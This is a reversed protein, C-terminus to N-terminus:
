SVLMFDVTRNVLDAKIVKIKVVDGLKYKKKTNEGIIYYNEDDFYYYDDLMNSFHVLGEVTNELQVYMGFHTLSSVIGEYVNGIRKSMYEAVKLDMVAREAEEATRETISTHDAVKPLVAELREQEKSTLKGKYFAKIIRHIQLDPYRRIPATYHTYYKAALGFHIDPESSYRAKKLSRLLLTNILTEEKKGKVEKTIRQLEKPHIDQSGKIFYGFNHILRNFSEIKETDPEEHIRYLFPMESWYMYEAITENCVLMFEEIISNAIRRDEKVIDVPIGNEDLIMRAEPFDFDISGRRERKQRLINALEEMLRLDGVIDDLNKFAEDKGYELLDSVDDYILRAKSRIVGEVVEHNVVNGSKDIEMFVSLTLRDENPNLSCIGNSLEKPLMPIVRDVLYVSNGRKFAEKDLPSREPVYHSVDAIHVGLNYNEGKKEISVADDLDKADAGDITFTNLDRLDVRNKIEEETVKQNIRSAQQQVKEPFEECLKYQKIISLIDVGKEGVYGLVEIIKGEPNRRKEPWRTIEVVVKQNDKAGNIHNKPVFVDYAIRSDDPIVFGFNKSSEFTGVITENVRELIRIVEGEDKRDQLGKKVIRVIVRDGHIAGNLEEAPIFIDERTKDEPILFAFGKENGEIRGVILNMKHVLGYRDNRTKIIIGEKEMEDLVKYFSDMERMDIGFQIALEEKLMPKYLKEDMFDIINQKIGM